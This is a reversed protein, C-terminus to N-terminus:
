ETRWDDKVSFAGGELSTKGALDPSWSKMYRESWNYLGRSSMVLSIISFESNESSGFQLGNTLLIREWSPIEKPM